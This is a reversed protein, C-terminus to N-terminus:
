LKREKFSKYLFYYLYLILENKFTVCLKSDVILIWSSSFSKIGRRASHLVQREWKWADLACPIQVREEKTKERRCTCLRCLSM